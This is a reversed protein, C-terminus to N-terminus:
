PPKKTSNKKGLKLVGSVGGCAGPASPITSAMGKQSFERKEGGSKGKGKKERKKKKHQKRLKPPHTGCILKKKKRVLSKGRAKPTGSSTPERQAVVLSLVFVKSGSERVGEGGGSRQRIEILYATGRGKKKLCYRHV